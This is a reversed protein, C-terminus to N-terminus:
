RKQWLAVGEPATTGTVMFHAAFLGHDDQLRRLVEYAVIGGFSHGWFVYPRDILPVLEAVLADVLDPFRDAVPEGARNERGPTQIAHMCIGAPPDLLFRAFLSAGVGMSHFCFVRVPADANGARAIWPGLALIGPEDALTLRATAAAPMRAE